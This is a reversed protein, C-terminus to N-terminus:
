VNVVRARRSRLKPAVGTVRWTPCGNKGRKMNRPSTTPTQPHDRRAHSSIWSSSSFPLIVFHFIISGRKSDESLRDRSGAATVHRGSRSSRDLSGEVIERDRENRRRRGSKRKRKRKRGSKKRKRRRRRRRDGKRREFLGRRGGRTIGRVELGTKKPGTSTNNPSGSSSSSGRCSSRRLVRWTWYERAHSASSFDVLRTLSKKPRPRTCGRSRSREVITM